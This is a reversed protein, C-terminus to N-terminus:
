VIIELLMLVFSIYPVLPKSEKLKLNKGINKHLIQVVTFAVFCALMFLMDELIGFGKVYLFLGSIIFVIVDAFGYMHSFLILQLGAFVAFEVLINKSLIFVGTGSWAYLVAGLFGIFYLWVSVSKTCFDQYAMLFMAAWFILTLGVNDPDAAKKIVSLCCAIVTCLACFALYPGCERGSLEQDSKRLFVLGCWFMGASLFILCIIESIYFSMGAEGKRMQLM